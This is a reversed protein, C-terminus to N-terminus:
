APPMPEGALLVGEALARRWFPNGAKIEAQLEGCTLPLVDVPVPADLFAPLYEPIRDMRRDNRDSKLLVLLDADSRRGCDGRAISGYSFSRSSRATPAGCLSRWAASRPGVADRDLFQAAAFSSSRRQM